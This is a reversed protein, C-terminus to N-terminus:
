CTKMELWPFIKNENIDVKGFKVMSLGEDRMGEWGSHRPRDSLM